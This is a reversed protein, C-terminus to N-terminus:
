RSKGRKPSEIDEWGTWRHCEAGLGLVDGARGAGEIGGSHGVLAVGWM